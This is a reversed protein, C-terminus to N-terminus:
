GAYEMRRGIRARLTTRVRSLAAAFTSPGLEDRHAYLAEILRCLGDSDGGAMGEDVLARVATPAGEATLVTDLDAYLQRMEAADAREHAPRLELQRAVKELIVAAMFAQTRPYDGDVAPGIEKRLTTSM